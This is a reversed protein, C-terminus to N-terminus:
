DSSESSGSSETASSSSDEGVGVGVHHLLPMTCSSQPVRTLSSHSRRAHPHSDCCGGTCDSNCKGCSCGGCGGVLSSRPGKLLSCRRKKPTYYVLSPPESTEVAIPVSLPSVRDLSLSMPRSLPGFFSLLWPFKNLFGLDWPTCSAGNGTEFYARALPRQRLESTCFGWSM